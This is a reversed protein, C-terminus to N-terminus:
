ASAYRPITCTQINRTPFEQAVGSSDVGIAFDFKAFAKLNSLVEESAYETKDSIRINTSQSKLLASPDISFAIESLGLLASTCSVYENNNFIKPCGLSANSCCSNDKFSSGIFLTM